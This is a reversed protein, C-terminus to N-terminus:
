GWRQAGTAASCAVKACDVAASARLAMRSTGNAQTMGPLVAGGIDRVGDGALDQVKRAVNEVADGVTGPGPFIPSIRGSGVVPRGAGRHWKRQRRAGGACSMRM